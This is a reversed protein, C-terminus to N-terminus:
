PRGPERRTTRCCGRGAEATTKPVILTGLNERVGTVVEIIDGSARVTPIDNVLVARATSARSSESM